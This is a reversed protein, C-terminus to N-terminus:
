EIGESEENEERAARIIEEKTQLEVELVQLRAKLEENEKIVKETKSLFNAFNTFEEALVIFDLKSYYNARETAHNKLAIVENIM